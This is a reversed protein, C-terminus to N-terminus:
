GLLELHEPGAGAVAKLSISRDFSAPVGQHSVALGLLFTDTIQRHGAIFEPRFIRKDLLSASEESCTDPTQAFSV